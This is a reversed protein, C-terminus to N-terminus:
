LFVVIALTLVAGFALAMVYWRVNGNQTQSLVLHFSETLWAIFNYIGDIFDRRNFLALWVYPRIFLRHYLRDFGWGSLFFRQLAAAVGHMLAALRQPSRLYYLYAVYVGALSVLSTFIQLAAETAISGREATEGPLATALFHSFSLHGGLTRPLDVFGGVISLFALVLLPLLM